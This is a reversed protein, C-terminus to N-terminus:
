TLSNVFINKEGSNDGKKEFQLSDMNKLRSHGKPLCLRINLLIEAGQWNSNHVGECMASKETVPEVEM